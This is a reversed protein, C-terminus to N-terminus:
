QASLLQKLRQVAVYKAAAVDRRAQQEATDEVLPEDLTFREALFTGGICDVSDLAWQRHGVHTLLLTEGTPQLVARFGGQVEHFEVTQM